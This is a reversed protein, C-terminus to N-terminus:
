GVHEAQAGVTLAHQSQLLRIEPTQTEPNCSNSIQTRRFQFLSNCLPNALSHGGKLNRLRSQSAMGSVFNVQLKRAHRTNPRWM